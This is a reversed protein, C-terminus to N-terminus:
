AVGTVNVNELYELPPTGYVYINSKKLWERSFTYTPEEPEAEPEKWGQLIIVLTALCIVAVLTAAIM